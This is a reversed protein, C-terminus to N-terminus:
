AAFANCYTTWSEPKMLQSFTKPQEVPPSSFLGRPNSSAIQRYPGTSQDLATQDPCEGEAAKVDGDGAFKKSVTLSVSVSFFLIDIEVTITATGTLSNDTFNYKLELYFVLSVEILGIVTLNGGCRMYGALETVNQDDCRKKVSFYYGAMIYVSGSALGGIDIDATGGFEIAAELQQMGKPSIEIRFFGGGGLVGYTIHFPNMRESINFSVTIPRQKFPIRLGVGISLHTLLLPGLPITPIPFSYSAGIHDLALDIKPLNKKGGGPNLAAALKQVFNLANSFEINKFDPKVRSGEGTKTVYELKNFSVKILSTLSGILDLTFNTLTCIVEVTQKSNAGAAKEKVPITTVVKVVLRATQGKTPVLLKSVGSKIETSWIFSTEVATPVDGPGMLMKTKLKPADGTKLNKPLIDSLPITGLIKADKFYDSPNFNGQAFQKLSNAAEEATKVQENVVKDVVNKDVVKRIEGVSVGGVPGITRSLAVMSMNPTLLAGAKEAGQETFDVASSKVLDLFVEAKNIVQDFEREVYLPNFKVSIPEGKDFLYKLSPVEVQATTMMPYFPAQIDLLADAKTIATKDFFMSITQLATTKDKGSEGTLPPPPAFAVEQKRIEIGSRMKTPDAKDEENPIKATDRLRQYADSVNVLDQAEANIKVFILVSEFKIPEGKQDVASIKFLFDKCTIQPVFWKVEPDQPPNSFGQERKPGDLEPTLTDLIRVSKYPLGRARRKSDDGNQGYTKVEDRVLIYDERKLFAVMEDPKDESPSVVRKTIQVWTARHGFPYLYGAEEVRVYQDRGMTTRHEWQEVSFGKAGHEPKLFHSYRSDIFGGMSTLMMRRAEISAFGSAMLAVLQKRHCTNPLYNPFPQVDCQVPDDAHRVAIARMPSPFEGPIKPTENLKRELRTHWLEIRDNYDVPKERHQWVTDEGPTLILRYPIELATHFQSLPYLSAVQNLPFLMEPDAVPVLPKVSLTYDRSACKLLLQELDLFIREESGPIQFVLQSPGSIRSQSRLTSPPRFSGPTCPAPAFSSQRHPQEAIHQPPFKVVLYAQKLEGPVSPPLRKLFPLNRVPDIVYEGNANKVPAFNYFEFTVALLDSPRIVKKVFDPRVLDDFAAVLLSSLARSTEGFAESFSYLGLTGLAAIELFSRRSLDSSRDRANVILSSSSTAESHNLPEEPDSALLEPLPVKMKTQAKLGFWVRAM